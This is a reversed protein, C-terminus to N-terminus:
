SKQVEEKVTPGAEKTQVQQESVPQEPPINPEATKQGSSTSQGSTNPESTNKEAPNPEPKKQEKKFIKIKAADPSFFLFASRRELQPTDQDLVALPLLEKKVRELMQLGLDKHAMERGSYRLHVKVKCGDLLFERAKRMKIQLDHVDTRPRLQVEKVVIKIQNKRSTKEKKSQKFKWKGYDMMKCTPPKANPAIEVLDLGKENARSVAQATNMVGMMTGEENVVRVEPALILENIKFKEEKKKAM